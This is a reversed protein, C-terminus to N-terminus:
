LIDRRSSATTDNISPRLSDAIRNAAHNTRTIKTSNNKESMASLQNNLIICINNNIATMTIVPKHNNLYKTKFM